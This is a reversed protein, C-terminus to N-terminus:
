GHTADVDDGDAQDSVISRQHDDFGHDLSVVDQRGLLGLDVDSDHERGVKRGELVPLGDRDIAEGDVDVLVLGDLDVLGPLSVSVERAADVLGECLVAESQSDSDAARSLDELSDM